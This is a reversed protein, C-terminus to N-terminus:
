IGSALCLGPEPAGEIAFDRTKSANYHYDEPSLGVLNSEFYNRSAM